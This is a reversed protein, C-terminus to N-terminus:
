ECEFSGCETEGSAMAHVGAIRIHEASCKKDSNYRCRVANCSVETQKAENCEAMNSARLRDGYSGKLAFSNCVTESSKIAERGGVQINSRKCGFDTNYVCDYVSCDLNTM